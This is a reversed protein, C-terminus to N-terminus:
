PTLSHVLTWQLQFCHREHAPTGSYTAPAPALSTASQASRGVLTQFITLSSQRRLEDLQGQLAATGQQTERWAFFAFIALGLMFIAILYHPFNNSDGISPALWRYFKIFPTSGNNRKHGNTAIDNTKPKAPGEDSGRERDNSM